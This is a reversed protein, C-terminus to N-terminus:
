RSLRQGLDTQVGLYYREYTAGSAKRLHNRPEGSCATQLQLVPHRVGAAAAVDGHCGGSVPSGACRAARRPTWVNTDTISREKRVGTQGGGDLCRSVLGRKNKGSALRSRSRLRKKGNGLCYRRAAPITPSTHAHATPAADADGPGRRAAGGGGGERGRQKRKVGACASAEGEAAPPRQTVWYYYM